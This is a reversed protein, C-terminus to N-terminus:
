VGTELPTGNDEVVDDDDSDAVGATEDVDADADDDFPIEHPATDPTGDGIAPDDAEAQETADVYENDSM